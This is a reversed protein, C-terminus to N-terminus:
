SPPKESLTGLGAVRPPTTFYNLRFLGVSQFGRGFKPSHPIKRMINEQYRSISEAFLLIGM